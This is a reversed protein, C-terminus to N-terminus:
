IKSIIDLNSWLGQLGLAMMYSDFNICDNETINSTKWLTDCEDCIYVVQGTAKIKAKYIVGQGDCFPCLQM